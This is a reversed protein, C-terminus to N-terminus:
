ALVFSLKGAGYGPVTIDLDLRSKKSNVLSVIEPALAGPPVLLDKFRVHGGGSVNFLSAGVNVVERLNELLGESLRGTKHAEAAVAPGILSLAAGLYAAAAVDCVCLSGVAGTDTVYVAVVRPGPSAGLPATAPKAAVPKCLLGQLLQMAAAQNPLHLQSM